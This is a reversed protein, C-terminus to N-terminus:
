QLMRKDRAEGQLRPEVHFTYPVSTPGDFHRYDLLRLTIFCFSSSTGSLQEGRTEWAWVCLSVRPRAVIREIRAILWHRVAMASKGKVIAVRNLPRCALLYVFPVLLLVVMAGLTKRISM